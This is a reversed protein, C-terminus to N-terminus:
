GEEGEDTQAVQSKLKEAYAKLADMATPLGVATQLGQAGFNGGHKQLARSVADDFEEQSLGGLILVALEEITEESLFVSEGHSHIVYGAVGNHDTPYIYPDGRMMAM